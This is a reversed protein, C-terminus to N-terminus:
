LDVSPASERVFHDRVQSFHRLQKASMINRLPAAGARTLMGSAGVAPRRKGIGGVNRSCSQWVAAFRSERMVRLTIAVNFTDRDPSRVCCLKVTPLGHCLRRAVM